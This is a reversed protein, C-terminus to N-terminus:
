FRIWDPREGHQEWVEEVNRFEIDPPLGELVDRINDTLHNQSAYALLRARDAPFLTRRLAAALDSRAAISGRNIQGTPDPRSGLMWQASSEASESQLERWEELNGSRGSRSEKALMDDAARGHKSNESQLM